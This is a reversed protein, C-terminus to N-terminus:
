RLQLMTDFLQSATQMVKASAQYAQQFRILNTAEEDLNVGAVRDRKEEAQDRVVVLAEKAISAQRAVNGMQNVQDIYAAAVTREGAFMRATELGALARINDNNGKGDKNGDLVFRDGARPTTSFSVNLGRYSIAGQLAQADFQREAVVTQTDIDTIRYRLPGNGPPQFFSIELPHTRVDDAVSIPTGQYSASVSARSAASDSVFVLVDDPVGGRIYAGTRFGLDALMSPKGGTGFGLEMLGDEAQLPSAVTDLRRAYVGDPLGLANGGNATIPEVRMDLAERGAVNSLILAGDASLRAQVGSAVSRQNIASVLDAASAFGARPVAVADGNLVLPRDLRLQAAPVQIQNALDRRLESKGSYLGVPLDLANPQGAQASEVQIRQGERGAADSLLLQGETTIRATVGSAVSRLNIANALAQANAFGGSPPTLVDGNLVLTAGLQLQATPVRLENVLDRRLDVKGTYVGANLGLANGGDITLPEIRIDQGERGTVNTLVLEGEPRLFARVGSQSSDSNIADVLAQPSAFGGAPVQLARGNLLLNRDLKLQQVPVRVENSAVAVIGRLRDAQGGGAAVATQVATNFWAAVQVAGLQAGSAQLAPQLALGNITIAGSPIGTVGARIRGGEILGPLVTGSMSQDAGDFAQQQQAQARAGYFVEIDRYGASGSQALYQDSYSAGPALGGAALLAAQDDANLSSGLLHRGDRTILQLQQDGRADNLFLAVDKVGAPVSAVSALRVASSTVGLQFVQGASPHPNNVLVAGLERPLGATPSTFSVTADATGTNSPNEIVRFQAAAAIRLPDSFAVKMGGAVRRAGAEVMLLEGGKNGYGDVGSRHLTNVENMLTRALHDLVNRTGDLVQERFSLLGGLRGSTIGTLSRPEQSYPDLVLGVRSTDAPDTVLSITVAGEPRVILDQNYVSGLSVIVSGNASFTTKVRAHESLERLLRDRQDLLAAPQKDVSVQKALQGNVQAIQQALTNIAGVSTDLADRSETDVLDLQSSILGFRSVLGQSDRLFEGRLVGSAPDTSLTRASSFFQSLASSLGANDSGMLDVVRNTYEVMPEQSSLESTSNRLNLEAFADYQRKVRDYVVGTGLFSAGVQKPAAANLEVEQRSYGDTSVNAINNSVTGLALQYASVANGAIGLLDSM